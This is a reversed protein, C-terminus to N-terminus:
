HAMLMGGCVNIAQGTIYDSESSALFAVVSAIDKPTAPRGLPVLREQPEYYRKKAEELTIGELQAMRRQHELNLDTHVVGPCISNVNIGYPALELALLQTLGIVGFKAADYSGEGKFAIKGNVSSINIIKGKIGKEVM